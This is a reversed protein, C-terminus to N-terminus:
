AESPLWAPKCTSPTPAYCHGLLLMIVCLSCSDAPAGPAVPQPESHADSGHQSAPRRCVLTLWMLRAGQLTREQCATLWWRLGHLPRRRRAAVRPPQLPAFSCPAGIVIVFGNRALVAVTWLFRALVTTNPVYNNCRGAAGNLPLSGSPNYALAVSPVGAACAAVPFTLLRGPTARRWLPECTRMPPGITWHTLCLLTLCIACEQPRAEPCEGLHHSCRREQRQAPLQHPLRPASGRVPEAPLNRM